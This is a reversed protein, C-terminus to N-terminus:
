QSRKNRIAELRALGEASRVRPALSPAAFPIVGNAKPKSAVQDPGREDNWCEGNLWTAPHPIFGDVWIPWTKQEAIAALLPEVGGAVQVAKRYAKEARPKAKKVPYATWFESFGDDRRAHTTIDVRPHPHTLPTQPSLSPSPSSVDCADSETVTVDRTVSQRERYRRQREAGSSRKPTMDAQIAAIVKAAEDASSCSQIILTITEASLM